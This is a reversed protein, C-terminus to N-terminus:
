PGERRMRLLSGLVYYYEEFGKGEPLPGFAGCPPFTELGEAAPGTYYVKGVEGRFRRVNQVTKELERSFEETGPAASLPSRGRWVCQGEEVLLSEVGGMDAALWLFSQGQVKEAANLLKLLSELPTSIRCLKVGLCSFAEEFEEVVSEQCGAALYRRTSGRTTLPLYDTILGEEMEHAVAEATARSPMAPLTLFRATVVERPLLLTVERKPLAYTDFLCALANKWEERNCPLSYLARVEPRRGARGVAAQICGDLLAIVTM